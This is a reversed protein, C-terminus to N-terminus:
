IGAQVRFTFTASFFCISLSYLVSSFLNLTRLLSSAKIVFCLYSTSKEHGEWHIMKISINYVILIKRGRVPIHLENVRKSPM